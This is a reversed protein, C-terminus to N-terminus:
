PKVLPRGEQVWRPLGGRLYWVNGYGALRLAMLAQTSRMSHDCYLLIAENRDAPLRAPDDFLGQYPLNVAGPLHGGAFEDPDRVDIVFYFDERPDDALAGPQIRLNEIPQEALYAAITGTDAVGRLPVALSLCAIGVLLAFWIAPLRLPPM